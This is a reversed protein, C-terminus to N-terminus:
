ARRPGMTNTPAPTLPMSGLFGLVDAVGRSQALRARCPACRSEHAAHLAGCPKGPLGPCNKM